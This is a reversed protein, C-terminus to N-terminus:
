LHDMAENWVATSLPHLWQGRSLIDTLKSRVAIAFGEDLNRRAAARIGGVGPYSRDASSADATYLLRDLPDMVADGLTHKRIASLVAPDDVGYLKRARFASAHAHLLIPQQRATQALAPVQIRNRRIFAALRTVPIARGCDHLIGALAARQPNLDHRAALSAAHRAVALTHVYRTSNLESKLRKRIGVGYLGRNEIHTRVSDNLFKKIPDGLLLRLRIETSSIRPFSGPLACVGRKSFPRAGPRRGVLFTALSAVERPRTWQPLSAFTDSGCLFYLKEGPYKKKFHRLTEYSFTKRGRKIEFHDISVRRSLRKPLNSNLAMGVLANRQRASLAARDKLPSHFAPVVVVRSGTIGELGARLLRLHGRHPPDFSGGFIILSM